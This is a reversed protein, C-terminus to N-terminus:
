RHRSFLKSFFGKKRKRNRGGTHFTLLGAEEHAAILAREANWPHGEWGEFTFGVIHKEFELYDPCSLVHEIAMIGTSPCYFPEKATAQLKEFTLRNSQAPVRLVKERELHNAEIIAESFDDLDADSYEPYLSRVQEFHERHVGEDRVFCIDCSLEIFPRRECFRQAPRGINTAFLLDTRGSGTMSNRENFRVVFDCEEIFAINDDSLAANGVFVLKKTPMPM